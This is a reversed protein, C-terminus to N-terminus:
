YYLIKLTDLPLPNNKNNDKLEYIRIGSNVLDINYKKNYPVVSNNKIWLIKNHKPILNYNNRVYGFIEKIMNDMGINSYILVKEYKIYDAVDKWINILIDKNTNKFFLHINSLIINIYIKFLLKNEDFLIKSSIFVEDEYIEDFENFTDKIKNLIIDLKINEKIRFIKKVKKNKTKKKKSINIINEKKCDLDQDMQKNNEVSEIKKSIIQDNNQGNILFPYLIKIILNFVKKNIFIIYNIPVIINDYFALNINKNTNYEIFNIRRYLYTLCLYYKKNFNVDKKNKKPRKINKRDHRYCRGNNIKSITGCISGKHKGTRHIYRCYSNDLSFSIEKIDFNINNDKLLINLNLPINKDKKWYM